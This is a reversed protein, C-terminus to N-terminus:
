IKSELIEIRRLADQLACVLYPIIKSQDVGQYIDEGTETNKGDKAGSVAEPIIDQLEHAIFGVCQENKEFTFNFTKPELLKIKEIALSDDLKTINEKLRYDSTVNYSTGTGSAVISGVNPQSGSNVPNAYFAILTDGFASSRYCECPVSYGGNQLVLGTRGYASSNIFMAFNKSSDYFSGSGLVVKDFAGFRIFPNGNINLQSSTSSLSNSVNDFSLTGVSSINLGGASNGNQLTETLNEGGVPINNIQGQLNSIKQNLTYNSIGSM